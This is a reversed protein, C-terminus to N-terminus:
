VEDYPITEMGEQLVKCYENFFQKQEDLPLNISHFAGKFTLGTFTGMILFLDKLPLDDPNFGNKSISDQLTARLDSMIRHIKIRRETM